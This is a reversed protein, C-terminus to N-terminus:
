LQEEAHYIKWGEPKKILYTDIRFSGSRGPVSIRYFNYAFINENSPNPLDVDKTFSKKGIDSGILKFQFKAFAYNFEEDSMSNIQGISDKIQEDMMSQTFYKPFDDFNKSKMGQLYKLTVESPKLEPDKAKRFSVNGFKQTYLKPNTRDQTIEIGVMLSGTPIASHQGARFQIYINSPDKDNSETILKIGDIYKGTFGTLNIDEIIPDIPFIFQNTPKVIRPYIDNGKRKDMWRFMKDLNKLITEVNGVAPIYNKCVKYGTLLLTYDKQDKERLIQWKASDSDNYFMVTKTPNINDTAIISERIHHHGKNIEPNTLISV